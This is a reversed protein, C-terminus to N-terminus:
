LTASTMLCISFEDFFHPLTTGNQTLHAIMWNAAAFESHAHADKKHMLLRSHKYADTKICMKIIM